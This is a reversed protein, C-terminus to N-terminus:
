GEVVEFPYPNEEVNRLEKVVEQQEDSLAGSGWGDIIARAEDLLSQEYVEGYCCALLRVKLLSAPLQELAHAARDLITQLKTEKDDSGYITANYGMLLAICLNAEEAADCGQHAFLADSLALVSKNIRAFEDSYFPLNDTGLYLLERAMRQLEITRTTFDNM